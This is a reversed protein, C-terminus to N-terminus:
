KFLFEALSKKNTKTKLIEFNASGPTISLYSRLWYPFFYIFIHYLGRPEIASSTFRHGVFLVLVDVRRM